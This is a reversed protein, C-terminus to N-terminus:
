SARELKSLERKNANCVGCKRLVKCDIMNKLVILIIFLRLIIRNNTNMCVHYVPQLFFFFNAVFSQTLIELAFDCM